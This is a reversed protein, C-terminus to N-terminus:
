NRIVMSRIETMIVEQTYIHPIEYFLIVFNAKM